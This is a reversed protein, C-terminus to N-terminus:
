QTVLGDSFIFTPNPQIRTDHSITKRHFCLLPFSQATRTVWWCCWWRLNGLAVVSPRSSIKDSAISSSSTSILRALLEITFYMTIHLILAFFSFFQFKKKGKVIIIIHIFWWWVWCNRARYFFTKKRRIGISSNEMRKNWWESELTWQQVQDDRWLAWRKNWCSFYSQRWRFSFSVALETIVPDGSGM